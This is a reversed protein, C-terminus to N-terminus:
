YFNYNLMIYPYIYTRDHGTRKLFGGPFVTGVGAGFELLRNVRLIAEVDYEQGIHTGSRGSSDRAVVGGSSNYFADTASALWWNNYTAAVNWNRRVSIRAGGRIEKLNQWAVQDALGNHGHVNPSIQDFTGHTGDRSSRDGSAFDFEAFLRPRRRHKDFTYGVAAMGAWARISDSGMSGNELVAESTFDWWGKTGAWRLGLVKENLKSIAGSETRVGPALRWLVYPELDTGPIVNRATSYIGHLNNGQQHHSLGNAGTMVPAAAFTNVYLSRWRIVAM